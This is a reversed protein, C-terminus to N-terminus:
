SRHLGYIAHSLIRDGIKESNTIIGELQMGAREAVARSAINDKAASLQVKEIDLENFAIDILKTVVRTMIGFGQYQQSLWYGIEARKLSHDINNFSCNGVISGQYIIACTMSKGEAYDHLSKQIFLRFDQESHCYPPWALWESLYDLQPAVIDVYTAAFSEQVLALTLEEDIIQTFM